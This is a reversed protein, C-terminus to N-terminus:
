ALAEIDDVEYTNGKM